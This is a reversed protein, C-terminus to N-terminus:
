LRIALVREVGSLDKKIGIIKYGNKLFIDTIMDGQGKGFEFFAISEPKLFHHLNKAIEKYSVYGNDQAFLASHPEYLAVDPALQADPEIYPPNCVIIDYSAAKLSDFWNSLLFSARTNLTLDKANYYAIELAKKSYDILTAHANQYESLLALGLCGTGTGLDLIQYPKNKIPLLELVFEIITESDPRPILTDPTVKFELGWFEKHGLIYAIPEFKKRRELLAKFATDPVEQNSKLLLVGRDIGISHALMLESDLEPTPIKLAELECKASYLIDKIKPM